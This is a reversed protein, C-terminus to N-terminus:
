AQTSDHRAILAWFEDHDVVLDGDDDRTDISILGYTDIYERTAADIDIGAADGATVAATIEAHIDRDTIM